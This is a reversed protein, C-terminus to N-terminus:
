AVAECAFGNAIAGLVDAHCPACDNCRVDFPKGDKHRECLSCFCALNKGRLEDLAARMVNAAKPNALHNEVDERFCQVAEAVTAITFTECVKEKSFRQATDGVRWRNGWKGPRTVSVTNPPM